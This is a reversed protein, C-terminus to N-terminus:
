RRLILYAHVSNNNHQTKRNSVKNERELPDFDSDIDANFDDDSGSFM